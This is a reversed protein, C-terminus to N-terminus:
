LAFGPWAWHFKENVVLLRHMQAKMSIALFTKGQLDGYCKLVSAEKDWISNNSSIKFLNISVFSSIWISNWSRKFTHPSLSASTIIPYKIEKLSNMTRVCKLFVAIVGTGFIIHAIQLVVWVAMFHKPPKCFFNLFFDWLTSLNGQMEIHSYHTKLPLWGVSVENWESESPSRFNRNWVITQACYKLM